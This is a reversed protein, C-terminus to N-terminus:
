HALLAFGGNSRKTPPAPRVLRRPPILALGLIFFGPAMMYALVGLYPSPRIATAEILHLFLVSVLSVIALALGILSLPNRLLERVKSAGAAALSGNQHQEDWM